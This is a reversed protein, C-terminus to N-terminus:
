EISMIIQYHPQCGEVVEIEQDTYIQRLNDAIENAQRANLDAGYYFTLLELEEAKALALGEKVVQEIDDGAIALKGNLLAIIQGEEVQVDDIEVSRTATTIELCQVDDLAATMSAVIEDFDAEKNFAFLASIGQPVSVSPIVAVQKVTLNIVQKAALVVNKNNPLIIVKETPLNEFANLIEQTSPNM